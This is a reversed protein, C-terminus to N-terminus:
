WQPGGAQGRLVKSPLAQSGGQTRLLRDHLERAADTFRQAVFDGVAADVDAWAPIVKFDGIAQTVVQGDDTRTALVAGSIVIRRGAGVGNGFAAAGSLGANTPRNAAETIAVSELRGSLVIDSFGDGPSEPIVAYGGSSSFIQGIESKLRADQKGDPSTFPGLAVVQRVLSPERPICVHAAFIMKVQHAGNDDSILHAQTAVTAYGSSQAVIRSRFKEDATGNEERASMVARSTAQVGIVQRVAETAAEAVLQATVGDEQGVSCARVLTVIVPVVERCETEFAAAPRGTGANLWAAMIGAVLHLRRM